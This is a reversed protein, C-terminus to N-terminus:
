KVARCYLDLGCWRGLTPLLRHRPFLPALWKSAVANERVISVESWAAMTRRLYGASVFVTEPAARGLSDVDYAAREADGARFPIGATREALLAQLTEKPWGLWRRYSYANYVMITAAGSPKLVRHTERIALDMNGTHHFCGIAVVYDFYADPWPCALISGQRVDSSIGKQACRHRAMAVPGAAIDLGHYNSSAEALQQAVSGYGLGVELVRRGGLESFPIHHALYPYLAFYWEDFRALSAPSDDTVGLSRALGSGCLENWFAANQAALDTM